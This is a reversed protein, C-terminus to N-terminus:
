PYQFLQQETFIHINNDIGAIGSALTFRNEPIDVIIDAAFLRDFPQPDARQGIFADPLAHQRDSEPEEADGNEFWSDLDCDTFVLLCEDGASVPFTVASDRAGPFFVPVDRILPLATKGKLAPRVAATQTRADFSAVIGPLACHLSAMLEKKLAAIEPLTLRGDM